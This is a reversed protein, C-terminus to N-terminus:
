SLRKLETAAEETSIAGSALDDLLSKRRSAMEAPNSTQEHEVPADANTEPPRNDSDAGVGSLGLATVAASLRNRVTPYSLNLEKEVRSLNGECRLFIELFLLHESSIRCFRCSEFDSRIVTHCKGCELEKVNLASDCVPCTSLLKRM